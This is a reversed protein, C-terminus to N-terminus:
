PNATMSELKKSLEDISDSNLVVKGERDYLLYRPVGSFDLREQMAFLDEAMRYNPFSVGTEALFTNATEEEEPEDFNMGLFVVDNKGHKEALEVFKPFKERCPVCWSAWADIAIMKGQHEAILKEFGKWDLEQLKSSKTPEHTPPAATAAPPPPIVADSTGPEGSTNVPSPPSPEDVAYPQVEKAPEDQTKGCSTLIILTLPFLWRRAILPM